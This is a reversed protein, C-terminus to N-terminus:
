HTSKTAIGYKLGKSLVSNQTETLQIDSLNFITDKYLIAEAEEVRNRRKSVFNDKFHPKSSIGMNLYKNNLERKKEKQVREFIHDTYSQLFVLHILSKQVYSNFTM